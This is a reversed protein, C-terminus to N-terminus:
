SAVCGCDGGKMLKRSINRTKKAFRSFIGTYWIFMLIIVIVSLLIGILIYPNAQKQQEKKETNM